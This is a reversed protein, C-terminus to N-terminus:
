FIIFGFLAALIVSLVSREFWIIVLEPITVPIETSLMCPISASFFLVSSVCTVGVVYRSLLAANAVIGAPLFMETIGVSLAKATLMADPIQMLRTFPYFIYGLVDFIPTYTALLLGLLGISMITPLINCIMKLGDKLNSLVNALISESNHSTKLAENWATSLRKTTVIVEPDPNDSVYNDPKKNIPYIRVTIATVIFTIVLTTWFYLNWMEMLGLTKAVIIMFTASVTSFGTAIIVAEKTTYKGELYVRNTILLGLSYSGVFSAVADIASRGPTKWIPRMVPQMLVGTFEMLGYGVLFSLFVAGVPILLGLPLVLKEYLFPFIDPAYLFEPGLNFVYMIGTIAGIVKFISFVIDVKTKNWTKNKFPLIAGIILIILGYYKVAGGLATKIITVVHDLPISSKGQYPISVFFMFIGVISCLIFKLIDVTTYKGNTQNSKQM